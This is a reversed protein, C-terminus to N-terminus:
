RLLGMRAFWCGEMSIVAERVELDIQQETM